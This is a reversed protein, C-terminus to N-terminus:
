KQLTPAPYSGIYEAHQPVAAPHWKAAHHNFQDNPMAAERKVAIGAKNVAYLTEIGNEFDSVMFGAVNGDSIYDALLREIDRYTSM